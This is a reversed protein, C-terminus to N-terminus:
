QKDALAPLGDRLSYYAEIISTSNPGFDNWVAPMPGLVYPNNRPLNNNSKSRDFIDPATPGSTSPGNFKRTLNLSQPYSGSWKAVNYFQDDSNLVSIDHKIYDYCPNDEFFEWHQVSINKNITPSVTPSPFTGWIRVKKNFKQAIFDHM